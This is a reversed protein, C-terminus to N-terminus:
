LRRNWSTDQPVSASWVGNGTGPLPTSGLEAVGASSTRWDTIEAVTVPAIGLM